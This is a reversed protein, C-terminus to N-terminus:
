FDAIRWGLCGMYFFVGTLQCIGLDSFVIHKMVQECQINWQGVEQM